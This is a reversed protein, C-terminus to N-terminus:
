RNSYDPQPTCKPQLDFALCFFRYAAWKWDQGPNGTRPDFPTSPSLFPISELTPKTIMTKGQVDTWWKNYRELQAKLSPSPRDDVQRTSTHDPKPKRLPIQTPDVFQHGYRSRSPQPKPHFAKQGMFDRHDTQGASSSFGRRSNPQHREVEPDVMIRTYTDDVPLLSDVVTAMMAEITGLMGHVFGESIPLHDVLAKSTDYLSSPDESLVVDDENIGGTMLMAPISVDELHSESVPVYDIRGMPLGLDRGYQNHMLSPPLPHALEDDLLDDDIYSHDEYTERLDMAGSPTYQSYHYPSTYASFYDHEQPSTEIKPMTPVRSIRTRKYEEFYFGGDNQLPPSDLFGDNPRDPSFRSYIKQRSSYSRDEAPKRKHTPEDRAPSFCAPDFINAESRAMSQRTYLFDKRYYMDIVKPYVELSPTDAYSIKTADKGDSYPYRCENWRCEEGIHKLPSFHVKRSGSRPIRRMIREFWRHQEQGETM